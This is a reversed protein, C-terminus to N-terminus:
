RNCGQMGELIKEVAAIRMDKEFAHDLFWNFYLCATVPQGRELNIEGLRLAAHETRPSGPYENFLTQYGWEIMGDATEASVSGNQKLKEYCDAVLWHMADAFMFQSNAEVSDIFADAAPLWQELYWYDLGIMYFAMCRTDADPLIPLTGSLVNIGKEYFVAASQPDKRMAAAQAAWYYEEGIDLVSDVAEKPHDPFFDTYLRDMQEQVGADNDLRVYGKGIGEACRIQVKPDSSAASLDQYLQIAYEVNKPGNLNMISDINQIQVWASEKHDPYLALAREGLELVQLYLKKKFCYKQLDVVASLFKGAPETYTGFLLETETQAQNPDDLGIFVQVMKGTTWASRQDPDQRLLWEYIQRAQLPRNFDLYFDAIKQVTKQQVSNNGMQGQYKSLLLATADEAGPYDRLRIDNKVLDSLIFIEEPHDPWTSLALQCLEKAKTFQNADFCATAIKRISKCAETEDSYGNTIKHVISDIESYERLQIQAIALVSLMIVAETRNQCNLLQTQCIQRARAPQDVDLCSAAIRRLRTDIEEYNAYDSLLHQIAEDALTDNGYKINLLALHYWSRFAYETQPFTEVINRHNACAGVYDNQRTYQEAAQQWDLVQPPIEGQAFVFSSSFVLCVMLLLSAKHISFSFLRM